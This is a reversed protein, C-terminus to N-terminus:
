KLRIIELNFGICMFIFAIWMFQFLNMGRYTDHIEREVQDRELLDQLVRSTADLRAHHHSIKEMNIRTKLIIHMSMEELVEKLEENVNSNNLMEIVRVKFVDLKEYISLFNDECLKVCSM